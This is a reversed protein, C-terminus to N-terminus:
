VFVQLKLINMPNEQSSKCRFVKSLTSASHRESVGCVLWCFMYSYYTKIWKWSGALPPVKFHVATFLVFSSPLCEPFCGSRWGSMIKIYWLCNVGPFKRHSQKKTIAEQFLQVSISNPCISVMKVNKYSFRFPESQARFNSWRKSFDDLQRCLLNMIACSDWVVCTLYYLPQACTLLLCIQQHKKKKQLGIWDSRCVHRLIDM